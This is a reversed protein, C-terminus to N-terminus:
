MYQSKNMATNLPWGDFSVLKGIELTIREGRDWKKRELSNRSVLLLKSLQLLKVLAVLLLIYLFTVRRNPQGHLLRDFSGVLEYKPDKGEQGEKEEM